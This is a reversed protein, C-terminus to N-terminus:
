GVPPQEGEVTGDDPKDRQPHELVVGIELTIGQAVMEGLLLDDREDGVHLFEASMLDDLGLFGGSTAREVGVGMALGEVQVWGFLLGHEFADKDFIPGLDDRDDREANKCDDKQQGADAGHSQALGLTFVHGIQWQVVGRFGGGGM